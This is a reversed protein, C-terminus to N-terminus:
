ELVKWIEVTFGESVFDPYRSRMEELAEEPSDAPIYDADRAELNDYGQCRPNSYLGNITCRYEVRKGINECLYDSDAKEQRSKEWARHDQYDMM